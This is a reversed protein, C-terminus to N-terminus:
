GRVDTSRSVLDAEDGDLGDLALFANSSRNLYGACGGSFRSSEM